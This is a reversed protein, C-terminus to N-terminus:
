RKEIHQEVIRRAKAARQAPNEKYGLSTGSADELFNHLYTVLAIVGAVTAAILVRQAVDWPPLEGPALSLGLWATLLVGLFAQLFTRGARSLADKWHMM